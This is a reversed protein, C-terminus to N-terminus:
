EAWPLADLWEQAMKAFDLMNVKGDYNSDHGLPWRSMSAYASNGYAGMNIRGGNPMPENSPNVVPDGGDICPSTVDDLVWEDTTARYRGRESFLHYDGSNADAFLPDFVFGEGSLGKQYFQEIEEVPLARDFIMVEDIIGDFFETSGGQTAITLPANNSVIAGFLPQTDRLIGDVYIKRSTGDYVGVVYYWRQVSPLEYGGYNWGVDNIGLRLYDNYLMLYYGDAAQRKRLIQCIKFSDPRIWAALTIESGTIDLSADNGCDVYDNEGDFRLASGVQGTTWFPEGYATGDNSGVSDNTDGDLKWYSVPVNVDEQVFSYRANCDWLDYTNNWLICNVINPEAGYEAEIGLYNDVLTINSITPTGTSVLIATDSNRIVFNALVSNQAESTYFSVGYLGSAELIAADAASKVTIAKDIFYLSENYIGPWVLVTDCDQAKDIGYQITRFATEQTLGDNSNNGGAGDVHYTAGPVESAVWTPDNADANPDSGLQGDNGNGSSDGAIQGQGEEFDWYGVLNSDVIVGCHYIDEIEEATLARNYIAAEDITGNFYRQGGLYSQRGINWDVTYNVTGDWPASTLPQLVTNYYVKADENAKRTAVIHVWQNTAVEANVNTTCWTTGDCIQFHIHRRPSTQGDPNLRGDLIVSVGSINGDDQSSIIVWLADDPIAGANIWASITIEDEINLAAPSALDVYDGAGDFDLASGAWASGCLALTVLLTLVPKKQAKLVM